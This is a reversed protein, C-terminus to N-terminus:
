GKTLKPPDWLGEGAAGASGEGLGAAELAGSSGRFGFAILSFMASILEKPPNEDADLEVDFGEMDPNVGPDLGGVGFKKEVAGGDGVGRLGDGVGRLGDGVCGTTM